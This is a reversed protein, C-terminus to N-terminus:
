NEKEETSETVSGFSGNDTEVREAFGFFSRMEESEGLETLLEGVRLLLNLGDVPTDDIRQLVQLMESKHSTLIEKAIFIKSKGSKVVQAVNKDSLIATIPELLDGWLLIADDGKYDSLKKM